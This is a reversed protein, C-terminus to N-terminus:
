VGIPSIEVRKVEYSEFGSPSLEGATGFPKASQIVLPALSESFAIVSSDRSSRYTCGRVHLYVERSNYGNVTEKLKARLTDKPFIVDHYNFGSPQYKESLKSIYGEGYDKYALYAEATQIVKLSVKSKANKYVICFANNGYKFAQTVRGSSDKKVLLKLPSLSVFIKIRNPLSGCNTEYHRFVSQVQEKAPITQIQDQIVGCIKQLAIRLGKDVISKFDDVKTFEEIKLKKTPLYYDAYADLKTVWSPKHEEDWYKYWESPEVAGYITEEHLEDAFSRNPKCSIVIKNLQVPLDELIRSVDASSKINLIASSFNSIHENNRSIRHIKNILSRSIMGIAFADLAHHRNDARNKETPSSPDLLGYLGYSKNFMSTLGGNLVVVRSPKDVICTLYDRAVRSIYRTDNLHRELFADARPEEQSIINEYKRRNRVSFLDRALEQIKLWKGEDHSFAQYPTLNKKSRNESHFVLVKNSIGDDLSKSYPKIHEIEINKTFLETISIPHNSYICRRGGDVDMEKWLKYKTLDDRSDKNAGLPVCCEEFEKKLEENYKNTQNISDKQKKSNKLDRALELHIAHPKQGYKAILANVVKRLENLAVHVTPNSIYFDAESGKPPVYGKPSKTLCSMDLDGYYPLNEVVEYGELRRPYLSKVYESFNSFPESDKLHNIVYTNIKALAKLSLSAYHTGLAKDLKPLAKESFMEIRSDSLAFQTQLRELLVDDDEGSSILELFCDLEIIGESSLFHKFEDYESVIKLTPVFDLETRVSKTTKKSTNSQQKLKGTEFNFQNCSELKLIERLTTFSIKNAPKKFAQDVVRMIQSSTLSKERQGEESLSYKLSILTQLLRYIEFSILGKNARIPRDYFPIKYGNEDHTEFSCRGITEKQSKLPRQDFICKKIDEKIENNLNLGSLEQQKEWILDFETEILSRDIFFNKIEHSETKDDNLYSFKVSKGELMRRYLFEGVTRAQSNILTDKLNQIAKKLQSSGDENASKRNSKFGRRISLNYIARGLEFKDLASDLAKVRLYYPNLNKLDQSQDNEMPFLGYKKLIKILRNQRQKFRYLNRRQSRKDRRRTALTTGDKPNRPETFLRVGMKRIKCPVLDDDQSNLKDQNKKLDFVCWGISNTGIDLSLLYPQKM